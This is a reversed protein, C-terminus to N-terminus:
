SMEIPSPFSWYAHYGRGSEVICSPELFTQLRTMQEEKTGTDFDTFCALLATVNDHHRLNGRKNRTSGLQNVTFYLGNGQLRIKEIREESPEEEFERRIKKGVEWYATHTNFVPLMSM